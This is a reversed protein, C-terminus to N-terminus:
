CGGVMNPLNNVNSPLSGGAPAPAGGAATSQVTSKSGAKMGSLDGKLNFLQVAQVAAVVVLVVLIAILVVNKKM